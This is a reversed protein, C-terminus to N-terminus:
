AARRRRRPPPVRERIVDEGERVEYRNGSGDVAVVWGERESKGGFILLDGPSVSASILEGSPSRGPLDNFRRLFMLNM